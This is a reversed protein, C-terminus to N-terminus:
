KSVETILEEFKFLNNLIKGMKEEQQQEEVAYDEGEHFVEHFKKILLKSENFSFDFWGQLNLSPLPLSTPNSLKEDSKFGNFDKVFASYNKINSNSHHSPDDIKSLSTPYM